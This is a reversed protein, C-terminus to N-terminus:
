GPPQTLSALSAKFVATAALDEVAESVHTMESSTALPAMRATIDVEAFRLVTGDPVGAISSAVIPIKLKWTVRSPAKGDSSPRVQCTLPSYGSAVGASTEVYQTIGNTIGQGTYTKTDLTLNAM